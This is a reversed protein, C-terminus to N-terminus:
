VESIKPEVTLQPDGIVSSFHYIFDTLNVMATGISENVHVVSQEFSEEDSINASPTTSPIVSPTTVMSTSSTTEEDPINPLPTISPIESTTVTRMVRSSSTEAEMYSSIEQPFTTASLSIVIERTTTITPSPEVFEQLSTTRPKIAELTLLSETTSPIIVGCRSPLTAKCEKLDIEKTVAQRSTITYNNDNFFTVPQQYFLLAEGSFPRCDGDTSPTHTNHTM